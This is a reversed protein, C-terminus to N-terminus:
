KPPTKLTEQWNQVLVLHTAEEDESRLLALFRGDPAVDYRTVMDFGPDVLAFLPLSFLPRSEGFTLDEGQRGVSVAKLKGAQVYFLEKGDRSWRPQSGGDSSVRFRRTPEPFSAAYVEKRGSEDSAYAVWRNDPSFDGNSEDDPTALYTRPRREGTLSVM